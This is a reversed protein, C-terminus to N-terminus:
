SIALGERGKERKRWRRMGLTKLDDKVCNLWRLRTIGPKRRGGPNTLFVCKVMREDDMRVVHGAWELRKVKTSTVIDASRYKYQLEKNTRIRWGNTDRKPDYVRRLIKREWGRLAEEVHESMTRGECGYMVIPRITRYIKLKTSKSIERSKIIKSLAYYCRSEAAMRAKIDRECNNDSTIISRLYKFDTVEQYVKGNIDVTRTNADQQRSLNVETTSM